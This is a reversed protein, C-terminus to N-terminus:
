RFLAEAAARSDGKKLRQTKLREIESQLLVIRQDIEAVSLLSLEDESLVASDRPKIADEEFGSM